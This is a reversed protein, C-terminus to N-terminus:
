QSIKSTFSQFLFMREVDEKGWNWTVNEDFLVDQSIIVKQNKLSYLKYGKSQSSQGVFICKESTENLKYQKERQVEAYCVCGFFRLHKM